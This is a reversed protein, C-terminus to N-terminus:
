ANETEGLREKAVEIEDAKAKIQADLVAVKDMLPKLADDNKRHCDNLARREKAIEDAWHEREKTMQDVDLAVSDMYSGLSASVRLLQELTSSLSKMDAPPSSKNKGRLSLSFRIGETAPTIAEDQSDAEGDKYDEANAEDDIAYGAFPNSKDQSFPIEDIPIDQVQDFTTDDENPPGPRARLPWTPTAAANDEEAPQPKPQPEIANKANMEESMEIDNDVDKSDDIPASGDEVVEEKGEQDHVKAVGGNIGHENPHSALNRAGEKDDKEKTLTLVDQADEEEVETSRANDRPNATAAVALLQLFRSTKDPELGAVIKKARVDVAIHLRGEVHKIIKELFAIKASKEKVNSSVMEEPTLISELGLSTSMNVALILDHLFRFPPKSLLKDTCKPKPTMNGLVERTRSLDSNCVSIMDELSAPQQQQRPVNVLLTSDVEKEANDSAAISKTEEFTDSAHVGDIPVPTVSKNAIMAAVALLQLFQCTKDSELGALIKKPSVDIATNLRGEVHEIIKDLFALRDVKDKLSSSDMEEITLEEELGFGTADNIGLILDHLFRFPPKSLLKDTCKPKQVIASLMQRTREKDTNCKAILDTTVIAHDSPLAGRRTEGQLEDATVGLCRAIAGASDWQPDVAAKGLCTLLANTNVPELGAVIEESRVDLAQYERLLLLLKNLFALKQSKESFAKSNLEDSTFYGHPFGTSKLTATVIDHIFRFPPKTLLKTSLKPKTFLPQLVRQTEVISEELTM